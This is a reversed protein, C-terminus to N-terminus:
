QKNMVRSAYGGISVTVDFQTSPGAAAANGEVCRHLRVSLMIFAYSCCLEYRLAVVGAASRRSSAPAPTAELDVVEAAADAAQSGASNYM